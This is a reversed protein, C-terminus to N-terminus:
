NQFKLGLWFGAEELDSVQCDKALNKTSAYKRLKREHHKHAKQDKQIIFCPLRVFFLLWKLM